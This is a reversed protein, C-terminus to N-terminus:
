VKNVFISGVHTIFSNSEAKMLLIMRLRLFIANFDTECDNRQTSKGLSLNLLKQCDKQSSIVFM